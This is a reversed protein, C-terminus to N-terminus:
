FYAPPQLFKEDLQQSFEDHLNHKKASNENQEYDEMYETRHKIIISVSGTSIKYKDTLVRYSFKQWNERILQIKESPTLTHTTTMECDYIIIYQKKAYSRDIRGYPSNM